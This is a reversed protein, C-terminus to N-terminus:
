SQSLFTFFEEFLIKNIPIRFAPMQETELTSLVSSQMDGIGIIVFIYLRNDVDSKIKSAISVINQGGPYPDGDTIVIIWPRYYCIGQYKYYDIRKKILEQAKELAPVLLSCGQAKLKPMEIKTLKAPQQIVKVVSDFTIIGVELRDRTVSDQEIVDKFRKLSDNLEAIANNANMSGSTDLVLVCLCKQEYDNELSNM